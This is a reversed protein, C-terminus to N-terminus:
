KWFGQIIEKRGGHLLKGLHSMSGVHYSKGVVSQPSPGWNGQSWPLGAGRVCKWQQSWDHTPHNGRHPVKRCPDQTRRCSLDLGAGSGLITWGNGLGKRKGGRRGDGEFGQGIGVDQAQLTEQVMKDLLFKIWENVWWFHVRDGQSMFM